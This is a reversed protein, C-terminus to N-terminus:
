IPHTLTYLRPSRVSEEISRYAPLRGLDDNVFSNYLSYRKNRNMGHLDSTACLTPSRYKTTLATWAENSLGRHHTVYLYDSDRVQKMDFTKCKGLDEPAVTVSVVAAPETPVAEHYTFDPERRFYHKGSARQKAWAWAKNLSSTLYVGPGFLGGESALFGDALIKKANKQTTGHFLIM